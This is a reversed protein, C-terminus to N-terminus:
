NNILDDYCNGTTESLSRKLYVVFQHFSWSFINSAHWKIFMQIAYRVCMRYPFQMRPVARTTTYHMSCFKIEISIFITRLQKNPSSSSIFLKDLLLILALLCYICKIFLSYSFTNFNAESTKLFLINSERIVRAPYAHKASAVTLHLVCLPRMIALDHSKKQWTEQRTEPIVLDTEKINPTKV